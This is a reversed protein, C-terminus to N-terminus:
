WTGVLSPGTGSGITGSFKGIATGGRDLALAQVHLNVNRVVQRGAHMAAQQGQATRRAVFRQTQWHLERDPVERQGIM